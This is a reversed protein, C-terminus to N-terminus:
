FLFALAAISTWTDDMLTNILLQTLWSEYEDSTRGQEIVFM